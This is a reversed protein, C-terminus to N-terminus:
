LKLDFIISLSMTVSSGSGEQALRDVLARIDKGTWSQNGHQVSWGVKQPVKFTMAATIQNESTESM